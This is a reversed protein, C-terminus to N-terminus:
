LNTIKRISLTKNGQYFTEKLTKCVSKLNRERQFVFPYLFAFLTVVEKRQRPFLKYLFLGTCM